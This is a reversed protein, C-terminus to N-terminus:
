KCASSIVPCVCPLATPVVSIINGIIDRWKRENFSPKNLDFFAAQLEVMQTNKRFDLMSSNDFKQRSLIGYNLFSKSFRVRQIERIAM